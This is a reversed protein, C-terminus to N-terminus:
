IRGEDQMRGLERLVEQVQRVIPTDPLEGGQEVVAKAGAYARLEIVDLVLQTPGDYLEAVAESPLCGFEECVRAVLWEEPPEWGEM